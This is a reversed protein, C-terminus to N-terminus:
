EGGPVRDRKAFRTGHLRGGIALAILTSGVVVAWWDGLTWSVGLGLLILGSLLCFFGINQTLFIVSQQLYNM